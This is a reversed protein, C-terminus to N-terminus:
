PSPPTTCGNATLQCGIAVCQNPDQALECSIDCWDHCVAGTWTVTCTKEGSCMKSIACCPIGQVPQSPCITPSANCDCAAGFPLDCFSPAGGAGGAGGAGAGGTGADTSGVEVRAGCGSVAFILAVQVARAVVRFSLSEM